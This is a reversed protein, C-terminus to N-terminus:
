TMEGAADRLLGVSDAPKLALQTIRRFTELYSKAEEPDDSIFDERPGELLVVNEDPTDDFEIIKFPGKMGTHFGAAFHVVQITVNPLDALEVLHKLQRSTVARSGAVRHIVAEDLLFSFRPADDSELLDRSKTRLDVLAPM